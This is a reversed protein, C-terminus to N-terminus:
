AAGVKGALVRIVARPLDAAGRRWRKCWEEADAEVDSTFVLEDPDGELYVGYRGVAIASAGWMSALDNFARVYHTRPDDHEVLREVKGGKMIATLLPRTTAPTLVPELPATGNKAQKGNRSKAATAM